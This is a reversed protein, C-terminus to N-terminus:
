VSFKCNKSRLIRCFTVCYVAMKKLFNTAMFFNDYFFAVPGDQVNLFNAAGLDM